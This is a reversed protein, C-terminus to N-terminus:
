PRPEGKPTRCKVEHSTNCQKFRRQQAIPFDGSPRTITVANIM